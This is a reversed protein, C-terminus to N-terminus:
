INVKHVTTGFFFSLVHVSSLFYCCCSLSLCEENALSVEFRFSCLCLYFFGKVRLNSQLAFPKINLGGLSEPM